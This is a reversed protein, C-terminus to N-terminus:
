GNHSVLMHQDVLLQAAAGNSANYVAYDHGNDTVVTGTNSWENASFVATDNIDGTLKLQHVASGSALAQASDTGLVDALTLKVTNAASDASLDLAALKAAQTVGSLDLSMGGSIKFVSEGQAIAHSALEAATATHYEFSADAVLVTTGDALTATSQGAEHVGAAPTRVVGDSVLNIETIGWDALSRVEGADSVGNGNADQWVKFEAFKADAANLKGDHNSDFGAALGTLDTSGGYQAFAYQSQDHVVGDHYKDWVLVGDQAAAWHTSDLAGDDNIDMVTNVYSVTGDRNLDLVVPAVVAGLSVTTGSFATTGGNVSANVTAGSVFNGSVLSDDVLRVTLAQKATSSTNTASSVFRVLDTKALFVSTSDTLGGAM